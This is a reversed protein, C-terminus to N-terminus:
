LGFVNVYINEGDDTNEVTYTIPISNSKGNKGIIELNAACEHAGTEDNSDTTRITKVNYTFTKAAMEGLQKTMEQDAIQTVLGTVDSSGCKPVGLLPIFTITILLIIALVPFTTAPIPKSFVALQKWMKEKYLVHKYYDYNALQACIVSGPIWYIVPPLTTDIMIEILTLIANLLTIGGFIVAGKFWMKKFFYYLPGFIFALFCFSIKQKERFGLSKFAESSMAKYIFKNNAGVKELIKFKEKWSESVDLEDINVQNISTEPSTEPAQEPEGLMDEQNDSKLAPIIVIGECRKCKIKKEKDTLKEDPINYSTECQNCKVKM